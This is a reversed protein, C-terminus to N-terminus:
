AEVPEFEIVIVAPHDEWREGKRNHLSCWVQIFGDRYPMFKEGKARCGSAPEVGELRADSETIWNVFEQRISTIRVRGVMRATRAPKIAVLDGVRWIVRGKKCVILIAGDPGRKWISGVPVLRRTQRKRGDLCMEAADPCFSMILPQSM